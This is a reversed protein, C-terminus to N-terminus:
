KLAKLFGPDSLVAVVAKDIMSYANKELAAVDYSDYGPMTVTYIRQLTTIGDKTINVRFEFSRDNMSLMILHFDPVGPMTRVNDFVRIGAYNFADKFTYWLYSSLLQQSEYYVSRDPSYYHFINTNMATNTFNLLNLQAGKYGPYGSASFSPIYKYQNLQVYARPPTSCALTFFTLFILISFVRAAQPRM